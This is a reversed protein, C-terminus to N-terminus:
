QKVFTARENYSNGSPYAVIVLNGSLSTIPPRMNYDITGDGSFAFSIASTGSVSTATVALANNQVYNISGMDGAIAGTSTVIGGGFAPYSVSGSYLNYSGMTYVLANVRIIINHPGVWTGIPFPQSSTVTVTASASKTTDAVSTAKIHYTGATSPATYVGSSSINGGGTDVVSWTVATNSSGTVTAEFTTSGSTTVSASTPSVSIGTTTVPPVTTSGPLGGINTYNCSFNYSVTSGSVSYNGSMLTAGSKNMVTVTSGIVSVTIDAFLKDVGQDISIKGHLFDPPSTMGYKTYISMSSADKQNMATNFNTVAQPLNTSINTLTARNSSVNGFVTDLNVSSGAASKAIVNSFPNINTTGATTAISYLTGAKLIYPATLKAVDFTFVGTTTDMSLQKGRADKLVVSGSYAAGSSATGSVVQAAPGSAGDGGGCGGMAMSMVVATTIGLITSLVKRRM